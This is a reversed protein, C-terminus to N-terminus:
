GAAALVAVLIVFIVANIWTATWGSKRLGYQIALGVLGALLFSLIYRGAGAVDEDQNEARSRSMGRAQSEWYDNDRAQYM